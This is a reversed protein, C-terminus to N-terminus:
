AGTHTSGIIFKANEIVDIRWRSIHLVGIFTALVFICELPSVCWFVMSHSAVLGGRGRVHLQREGLEPGLHIEAM